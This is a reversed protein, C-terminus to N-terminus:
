FTILDEVFETKPEEKEEIQNTDSISTVTSFKSPTPAVPYNPQYEVNSPVPSYQPFQNFTQNPIFNQNQFQNPFNSSNQYYYQQNQYFNQKDKEPDNNQFNQSPYFNQHMNYQMPGNENQPLNQNSLNNVPNSVIQQEKAKDTVNEVSKFNENQYFGNQFQGHDKVSM